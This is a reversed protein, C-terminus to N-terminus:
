EKAATIDAKTAIGLTYGLSVQHFRLDAHDDHIAFGINYTKGPLLAHMGPGGELKRAFVVTYVGNELKGEALDKTAKLRRADAVTGARTSDGSRWQWMELFKGDKVMAEYDAAPKLKDWGGRPKTTSIATRSEGLYKTPGNARIDLEKARAHSPADASVDPMSRLDDHCAAWCGGLAGYEVKGADLMVSIKAASKEDIKKTGSAGPKWQFRLYVKGDDIAAQVAVPISAVRGKAMDPAPEAKQGQVIKKGLDATETEHCSTCSEGKRMGRAGSHDSTSLMWELSAVGPYFVNITKAPVKNWDPSAFASPAGLLSAMVASATLLQNM